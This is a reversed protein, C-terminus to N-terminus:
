APIIKSIAKIKGKAAILEIVEVLGVSVLKFHTSQSVANNPINKIAWRDSGETSSSKHLFVANAKKIIQSNKAILPLAIASVTFSVM